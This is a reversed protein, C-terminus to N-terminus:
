AHGSDNVLRIPDIGISGLAKNYKRDVEPDFILEPDAPCNLWGNSQIEDELQGPAWGAYGLALLAKNPGSGKAIDRLIDITATLCVSEDIPLTSESKFYDASHLVFGRGTEVPGGLHVAMASLGSPVSIRDETPVINLQELLETFSINPARQNIVIGMAGESSHACLYIVSRSFRPDGMSPMAVLLQGDLYGDDESHSGTQM